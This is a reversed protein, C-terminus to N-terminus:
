STRDDRARAARRTAALILRISEIRATGSMARDWTQIVVDGADSLKPVMLFLDVAGKSAIVARRDLFQTKDQNLVGFGVPGGKVEVRIRVYGRRWREDALASGPLPLVAAYAWPTAVTAVEVGGNEIAAIMGANAAFDALNLEIAPTSSLRAAGVGRAFQWANEPPFALPQSSDRNDCSFYALVAYSSDAPSLDLTPGAIERVAASLIDETGNAPHHRRASRAPTDIRIRNRSVFDCIPVLEEYPSMLDSQWHSLLGEATLYQPDVPNHRTDHIDHVMILHERTALEPLIRALVHQALEQGHADWFVFVRRADRLMDTASVENIDEHIIEQRDFWDRSVVPRIRPVTLTEYAHETDYGYSRVRCNGLANAAETLVCTSNGFGRGLEVILDPRYDVSSAFLLLWEIWALVPRDILTRLKNLQPGKESVLAAQNRLASLADFVPAHSESRLEQAMYPGLIAHYKYNFHRDVARHLKLLMTNCFEPNTEYLRSAGSAHKRHVAMCETLFGINGHDALLVQIAYDGNFVGYFWDPFDPLLQRRFMMSPTPLEPKSDLRLIDEITCIEKPSTGIVSAWHQARHDSYEVTVPHCCIACDPHSDLFAVQKALKREDTWYDDGELLAVYEGRCAKYTAVFNNKGHMGFTSPGLRNPHLLAHIRNPHKRAHAVVIERTADTSCDEGVVIEWTFDAKQM